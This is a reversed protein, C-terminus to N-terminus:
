FDWEYLVYSHRLPLIWQPSKCTIWTYKFWKNAFLVSSTGRNIVTLHYYNSNTSSLRGDFRHAQHFRLSIDRNFRFCILSLYLSSVTIMCILCLNLPKKTTYLQWEICFKLSISVHKISILKEDVITFQWILSTKYSRCTLQTAPKTHIPISTIWICQVIM